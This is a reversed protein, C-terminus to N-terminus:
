AYHAEIEILLDARCVDGQLYMLPPPSGQYYNSLQQRVIDLMRPDRLYVKLLTLNKSHQIPLTLTEDGHNLLADINALTENLQAIVDGKHMTEHGLISATGSIYIHQADGWKKVTARSFSPSVVGYQRPYLFASVQRPNELQIGSGKAAIFYIQLGVKSSGIATAAPPSYSFNGHHDLADQRGLCFSRYRELGDIDRNIESFYNWIRVLCPYGSQKLLQFIQRYAENTTEKCHHKNEDSLLIHGFLIEGNYSYQINSYEGFEVKTQSRWVEVTKSDDLEPVALTFVVKDHSLVQPMSSFGIAALVGDDELYDALNANKYHSIKFSPHKKQIM